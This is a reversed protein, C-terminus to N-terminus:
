DDSRREGVAESFQAEEEALQRAVPQRVDLCHIALGGSADPGSPLTGPLLSSVTCFARLTRDDPLQTRYTVFGPQLPMRPDLARWAVDLGAAVSQRLFRLAYKVLKVPRARRDGPPMLNLSVWTTVLSAFVGVMLDLFKLGAIITWFLFFAIFRVLAARSATRVPNATAM